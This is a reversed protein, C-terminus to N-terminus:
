QRTLHRIVEMQGMPGIEKLNVKVRSLDLNGNVDAQENLYSSAVRNAQSAIMSLLPRLNKFARLKIEVSAGTVRIVERKDEIIKYYCEMGIPGRRFGIDYSVEGTRHYFGFGKSTKEYSIEEYLSTNRWSKVFSLSNWMEVDVKTVTNNIPIEPLFDKLMLKTTFHVLNENLKNEQDKIHRDIDTVMAHTLAIGEVLKAQASIEATIANHDM